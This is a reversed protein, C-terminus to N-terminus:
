PWRPNGESSDFSIETPQEPPTVLPQSQTRPSSSCMSRPITYSVTMASSSCSALSVFSPKHSNWLHGSATKPFNALHQTVASPHHSCSDAPSGLTAQCHHLAQLQNLQQQIAKGPFAAPLTRFKGASSYGEAARPRENVQFASM